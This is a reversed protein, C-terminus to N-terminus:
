NTEQEYIVELRELAQKHLRYTTTLSYNIIGAVEKWSRGNRYRELLLTQYIPNDLKDILELTARQQERLEEIHKLHNQEVEALASPLSNYLQRDKELGDEFTAILLEATYLEELRQKLDM